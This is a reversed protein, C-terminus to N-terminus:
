RQVLWVPSLAGQSDSVIRADEGFPRMAMITGPGSAAGDIFVIWRHDPSWSPSHARGTETLRVFPQFGSVSVRYLDTTTGFPDRRAFVVHDGMWSPQIDFAGSTLTQKNSGDANMTMLGHFGPVFQVAFVIRSGDPSWAPDFASATAPLDGTLNVLGTGDPRVTYVFSRGGIVRRFAIRDGAPSWAPQDAVGTNPVFQYTQTARDLIALRAVQDEITYAVYRGDPSPSPDVIRSGPWHQWFRAPPTGLRLDLSALGVGDSALLHYSEDRKVSIMSNAERGESKATIVVEGEGVPTVLGSGNVTAVLQNSSTWTVLRGTAPAGSGDIPTATLPVAAGIRTMALAPRVEVRVVPNQQAVVRFTVPQSVAPSAPNVVIVEAEGIAAIDAAWVTAKVETSSVWVTPRAAGNWQVRADPQFGIGVITLTLEPGGAAVAGPQLAWIVPAPTQSAEIEVMAQGTKGSATARIAVPGAALATVLGASTVTARSVDGSAWVITRTLTDGSASRVIARLTLTDGVELVPSAPMVTVSAVAPQGPEPETSLDECGLLAVLAVATLTAHLLTRGGRKRKAQM